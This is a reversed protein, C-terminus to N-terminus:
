CEDNTGVDRWHKSLCNMLIGGLIIDGKTFLMLDDTFTLHTIKLPACKPHFYFEGNEIAGKLM